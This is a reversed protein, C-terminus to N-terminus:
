KKKEGSVYAAIIGVMGTISMQLLEVVSQDPGKNEQLSIYFDGIVIIGLLIFLGITIIMITKEKFLDKM